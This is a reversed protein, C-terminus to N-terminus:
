YVKIAEQTKGKVLYYRPSEPVFLITLVTLAVGIFFGVIM